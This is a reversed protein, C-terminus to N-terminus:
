YYGRKSTSFRGGNYTFPDAGITARYDGRAENRATRLNAAAVDAALRANRADIARTSPAGTDTVRAPLTLPSAKRERAALAALVDSYPNSLPM